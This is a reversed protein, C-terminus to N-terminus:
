CTTCSPSTSGQACPVLEEGDLLYIDSAGYGPAGHGPSAREIFSFGSLSWGVGVFGNGGGSDYVLSLKPELGRYNPARIPITARASGVFQNVESVGGGGGGAEPPAGQAAGRGSGIVVAAAFLVRHRRRM